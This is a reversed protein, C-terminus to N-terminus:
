RQSRIGVRIRWEFRSILNRKFKRIATLQVADIGYENWDEDVEIAEEEAHILKALIRRIKQELSERTKAMEEKMRNEIESHSSQNKLFDILKEAYVVLRESNQATLPVIAPRDKTIVMEKSREMEIPTYEELIVHANSGTAGFSSLAARRPYKVRGIQEATIIPQKWEETQSQVYFPSKEFHIYHNLEDSHLSPVLTKHHLNLAVKHLGSFVRLLSQM